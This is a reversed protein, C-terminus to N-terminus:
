RGLVKQLINSNQTIEVTGDALSICRLLVPHLCSSIELVAM